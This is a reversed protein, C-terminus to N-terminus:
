KPPPDTRLSEVVFEGYTFDGAPLKWVADARRALRAGASERYERVPTSWPHRAFTEGDASMSRDESVFDALDGAPDFTLVASITEPGQTYTARVRRDDLPEWRIPVDVLAGPALVCLDNFFTVTESHNMEPGRADVVNVLGAARIRMTADRGVFAHLATFPIGARSAEILFLRAPPALTTRQEAVFDMWPAGVGNRFRGSFRAEFGRVHPRGVAGARQLYRRVPPPLPALDTETVVDGDSVAFPRKAVERRFEAALSWPALGLLTVALPVLVIANAVTGFRADSWAGFVLAQSLLLAPAAALWWRAPAALVLVAATVFLLGAALWLLGAARSIPEKLAAVDALGLGKVFGLLHIAGHLALLSTLAIRAM